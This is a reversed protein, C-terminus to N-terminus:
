EVFGEHSRLIGRSKAPGIWDVILSPAGHNLARECIMQYSTRLYAEEIDLFTKIVYGGNEKSIEGEIKAIAAYLVSKM